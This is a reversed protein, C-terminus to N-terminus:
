RKPSQKKRRAKGGTGVMRRQRKRSDRTLLNASHMIVSNEKKISSLSKSIALVLAELQGAKGGGRTKASVFYKVPQSLLSFPLLLRSKAFDGPFFESAKKGNVTIEGTGSYLRVSAVAEKRRGISSSILKPKSESM